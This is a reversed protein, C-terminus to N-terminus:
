AELASRIPGEIREPKTLPAFRRLPVGDRDILFKTFNWKVGKGFIGPLSTTLWRFLPHARAGNVDTKEFMPFSVGYNLLCEKQITAADGPEQNGFQNCPFGLIMLGRGKYKGYLSELGAYQPTFGCKSATNVVLVTKGAFCQLSVEEGQLTRARFQYFKSMAAREFTPPKESSLKGGM